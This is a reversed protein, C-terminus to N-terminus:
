QSALRIGTHAIDKVRVFGLEAPPMGDIVVSVKTWAGTRLTESFTIAKSNRSENVARGNEDLKGWEITAKLGTISAALTNGIQLTVKSGSAYPKVDALQVTLVGLDFRILSYGTDGPKLFAIQEISAIFDKLAQDAQKAKLEAIEKDAKEMRDKLADTEGQIVRLQDKLRSEIQLASDCGVLLAATLTFAVPYTLRRMDLRNNTKDTVISPVRQAAPLRRLMAQGVVDFTKELDRPCGHPM